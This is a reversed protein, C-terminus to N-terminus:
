CDALTPGFDAYHERILLAVQERVSTPLRNSATIGRRRSILGPEGEERYRVLWRRVQRSSRGLMLAAAKQSIEKNEIRQIVSVRDEKRSLTFVQDGFHIFVFASMKAQSLASMVAQASCGRNRLNAVLSDRAYCRVEGIVVITM